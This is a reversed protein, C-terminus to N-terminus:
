VAIFRNITMTEQKSAKDRHISRKWQVTKDIKVQM